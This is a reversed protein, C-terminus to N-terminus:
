YSIRMSILLITIFLNINLMRIQNSANYSTRYATASCTGHNINVFSIYSNDAGLVIRVPDTSSSITTQFTSPMQATLSYPSQVGTCVGTVSGTVQMQGSSIETITIVDNYCCCMRIDCGGDIGYTGVWKPTSSIEGLPCNKYKVLGVPLAIALIAIAGILLGIALGILCQKSCCKCKSKSREVRSFDQKDISDSERGHSQRYELSNPRLVIRRYGEDIDHFTMGNHYENTNYGRTTAM